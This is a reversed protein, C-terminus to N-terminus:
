AEKPLELPKQGSVRYECTQCNLEDIRANFLACWDWADKGIRLKTRQICPYTKEAMDEPHVM